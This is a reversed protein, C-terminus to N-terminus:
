KIIDNKNIVIRSILGYEIAEDSNLWFDRDTDKEVQTFPKGTEEAIIQNIKLRYKQMEQAHIEIETAVGRVGGILPQHILYRSNAFGMRNQKPPALLIMAGMSAALGMVITYIPSAVFRMADFIAFGSDISGGPSDIYIKIPAQSQEDLILLQKVIKEALENNVEGSIIISRTKLLEADLGLKASNNTEKNEQEMRVTNLM